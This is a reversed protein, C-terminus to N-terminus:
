GYGSGADPLAALLTAGVSYGIIEKSYCDTVLSLYCFDYVAGKRFTWFPIYTIDSVWLRNVSEPILERTLDPYHSLYPQLEHHPRPTEEQATGLNYKELISRSVTTAWVTGKGFKKNYMEWLKGGGIGPDKVRIEKIYEVCFAEDALRSM